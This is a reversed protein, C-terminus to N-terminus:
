ADLDEPPRWWGSVALCRLFWGREEGALRAHTDWPREGPRMYALVEQLAVWQMKRLHRTAEIVSAGLELDAATTQMMLRNEEETLLDPPTLHDAEAGRVAYLVRLFEARRVLEDESM